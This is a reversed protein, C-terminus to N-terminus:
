KASAQARERRSPPPPYHARIPGGRGRTKAKPQPKHFTTKRKGDDKSLYVIKDDASDIQWGEKEVMRDLTPYGTRSTVAAAPAQQPKPAEKTTAPAANAESGFAFNPTIKADRGEAIIVAGQMPAPTEIVTHPLRDWMGPMSPMATIRHTPLDTYPVLRLDIYLFQKGSALTKKMVMAEARVKRGRCEAFDTTPLFFNVVGGPVSQAFRLHSVQSGDEATFQESRADKPVSITFVAKGTWVIDRSVVPDESPERLPYASDAPASQMSSM